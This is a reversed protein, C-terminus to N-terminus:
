QVKNYRPIRDPRIRFAEWHLRRTKRCKNCMCTPWADAKKGNCERCSDVINLREDIGGVARPVIHDKTVENKTLVDHCYHCEYMRVAM